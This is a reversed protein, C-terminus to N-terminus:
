AAVALHQLLQEGIFQTYAPPIAQALEAKSMWDIGMAARWQELTGKGGGDGHVAFYPGDYRIGHRWGAVRGRHKGHPPQLALWGGLEFYRHRIVDLGFMEGCLVLGRAMDAGQVNEMVWPRGTQELAERSAALLWGTDDRGTLASLASHDHCPPGAHIADYEQGHEAIFEVADALYFRDGCYNPQPVNDVGDVEYGALQYGRTDGGGGCFAALLRPRTM